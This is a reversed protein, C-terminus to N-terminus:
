MANHAREHDELAKFVSNCINGMQEIKERKNEGAIRPPLRTDNMVTPLSPQAMGNKSQEREPCTELSHPPALQAKEREYAHSSRLLGSTSERM